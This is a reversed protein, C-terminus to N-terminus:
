GKELPLLSPDQFCEWVGDKDANPFCARRGAKVERALLEKAAGFNQAEMQKLAKEAAHFLAAYLVQCNPM